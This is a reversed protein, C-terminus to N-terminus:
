RGAKSEQVGHQVLGNLCEGPVDQLFPADRLGKLGAEASGNTVYQQLHDKWNKEMAMAALTVYDMTAETHNEASGNTVYQQLHDKWNKEMAMAALTVYDMTAETHNELLERKNDELRSIM